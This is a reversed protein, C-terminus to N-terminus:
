ELENHKIKKHQGYKLLNPRPDPLMTKHHINRYEKMIEDYEPILVDYLKPHIERINNFEISAKHLYLLAEEQCYIEQQARRLYKIGSLAKNLTQELKIM